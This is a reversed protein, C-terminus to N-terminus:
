ISLYIKIKYNEKIKNYWEQYTQYNDGTKETVQILHYGFKSQVPGVVANLKAKFAAEEFGPAIQTSLEGKTWYGLDGGSSKTQTDQSFEKAAASFKKGKAIQQKADQATLETATLIHRVKIRTLVVAKVKEKLIREALVEKFEQPRMGYLDNIRKEFDKASKKQEDYASDLEEQTVRIGRKQAELFVIKDEVLGAMVNDRLKTNKSITTAVDKPAQEQFTNLFRLRQLFRHSWIYSQDVRVAPLPYLVSLTESFKSESKKQYILAYGTIGFILYVVLVFAAIDVFITAPNHVHRKVLAELFPLRLRLWIWIKEYAIYIVRAVTVIAGVILRLIEAIKRLIPSLASLKDM